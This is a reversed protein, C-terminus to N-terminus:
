RIPSPGATVVALELQVYRAGIAISVQQGTPMLAPISQASPLCYCPSYMQWGAAARCVGRPLAEWMM